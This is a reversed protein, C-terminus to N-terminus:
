EVWGWQMRRFSPENVLQQEWHHQQAAHVLAAWAATPLSRSRLASQALTAAIEREGADWLVAIAMGRLDERKSTKAAAILAERLDGRDHDRLLYGAARIAVEDPLPLTKVSAELM